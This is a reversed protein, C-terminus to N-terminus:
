IRCKQQSLCSVSRFRTAPSSWVGHSRHLIPCGAASQRRQPPRGAAWCAVAEDTTM